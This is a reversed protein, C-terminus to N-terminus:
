NFVLKPISIATSIQCTIYWIMQTHAINFILIEISKIRLSMLLEHAFLSILYCYKTVHM